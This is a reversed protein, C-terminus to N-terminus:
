RAASSGPSGASSCPRSCRCATPSSRRWATGSPSRGRRSAQRAAARRTEQSAQLSAARRRHHAPRAETSAARPPQRSGAPASASHRRRAARRARARAARGASSRRAAPDGRADALVARRAAHVDARPRRDLQQPAVGVRDFTRARVSRTSGPASPSAAAAFRAADLLMSRVRALARSPSAARQAVDAQALAARPQARVRVDLSASTLAASGGPKPTRAARCRRRALDFHARAAPQEADARRDVRDGCALSPLSTTCGRPNSTSASLSVSNESGCTYTSRRRRAVGRRPPRSALQAAYTLQASAARWAAARSRRASAAAARARARAGAPRGEPQDDADPPDDAAFDDPLSLSFRALLLTAITRVELQGFRM